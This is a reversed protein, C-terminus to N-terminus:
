HSVERKSQKIVTSEFVKPNENASKHNGYKLYAEFNEKTAEANCLAPARKTLIREVDIFVDDTLIPKLKKLVAPADIHQNVHPGSLYRVVTAIDGNYHLHLRNDHSEM